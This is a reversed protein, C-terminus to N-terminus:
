SWESRPVGELLAIVDSESKLGGLIEGKEETDIGHEEFYNELQLVYDEIFSKKPAFTSVVTTTPEFVTKNGFEDTEPEKLTDEENAVESFLLARQVEEKTTTTTEPLEEESDSNEPTARKPTEVPMEVQTKTQKTNKGILKDKLKGFFGKGEKEKKDYEDLEKIISSVEKDKRIGEIIIEDRENLIANRDEDFDNIFAFSYISPLKFDSYSENDVVADKLFKNIKESDVSKKNEM